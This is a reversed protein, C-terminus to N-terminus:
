FFKLITKINGIVITTIILFISIELIYTQFLNQFIARSLKLKPWFSQYNILTYKLMAIRYKIM